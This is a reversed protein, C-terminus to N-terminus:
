VKLRSPFRITHTKLSVEKGVYKSTSNANQYKIVNEIKSNGMIRETQGGLSQM